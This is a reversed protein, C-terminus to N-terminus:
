TDSSNYAPPPGFNPLSDQTQNQQLSRLLAIQTEMAKMREEIELHNTGSPVSTTGQSDEGHAPTIAQPIALPTVPFHSERRSATNGEPSITVRADEESHQADLMPRPPITLLQRRPLELRLRREERLRRRVFMTGVLVVGLVVFVGGVVAGAIVATNDLHEAHPSAEVKSTSTPTSTPSSLSTPATPSPPAQTNDATYSHGASPLWSMLISTPDSWNSIPESTPHAQTPDASLGGATPSSISTPESTPHAQTPDAFLGGATPSSIPTSRQSTPASTPLAQPPRLTSM